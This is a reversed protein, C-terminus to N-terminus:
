ARESQNKLGKIIRMQNKLESLQVPSYLCNIVVGGLDRYACKDKKNSLFVCPNEKSHDCMFIINCM